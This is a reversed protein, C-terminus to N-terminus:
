QGFIKQYGLRLAAQILTATLAPQRGHGIGAAITAIEGNKIFSVEWEQQIRKAWPEPMNPVIRAYWDDRFEDLFMFFHQLTDYVYLLDQAQKQQTRTEKILFKQVMFCLPHPVFVDMPNPLDFGADKSVTVIWPDIQLVDLYRVKQASVGAILATADPTNDAKYARGKLPVLFEAYFGADEQGLTYHATPPCYDGSFQEVFGHTQLAQLIDAEVPMRDKFLLDTDRTFVPQHNQKAAKPHLAHLRHGWGGILILNARWPDLALLLKVFSDLDNM